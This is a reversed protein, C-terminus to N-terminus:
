KRHVKTRTSVAKTEVPEELLAVADSVDSDLIGQREEADVGLLGFVSEAIEEDDVGQSVAAVRILSKAATAYALKYTLQALPDSDMKARIRRCQDLLQAGVENLAEIKHTATRAESKAMDEAAVANAASRIEKELVADKKRSTDRLVALWDRDQHVPAQAKAAPM